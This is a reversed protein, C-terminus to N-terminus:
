DVGESVLGIRAESAQARQCHVIHAARVVHRDIEVLCILLFDVVDQLDVDM